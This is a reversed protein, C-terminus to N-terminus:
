QTEYPDRGELRLEPALLGPPLMTRSLHIQRLRRQIERHHQPTEVLVLNGRYYDQFSPFLGAFYGGSPWKRGSTGFGWLGEQLYSLTAERQIPFTVPFGFAVTRVKSEPLPSEPDVGDISYIGVVHPLDEDAAIRIAGSGVDYGLWTSPGPYPELQTLIIEIIQRVTANEIRLSVVQDLVKARQLSAEDLHIEVGSKRSIQRMAEALPVNDFDIRAIVRDLGAAREQRDFDGYEPAFRRHLVVVIIATWVLFLLILIVRRRSAVCASTPMSKKMTRRKKWFV